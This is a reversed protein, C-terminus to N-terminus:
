PFCFRLSIYRILISKLIKTLFSCIKPVRLIKALFSCIKFLFPMKQASLINQVFLLLNQVFFNCQLIFDLFIGDRCPQLVPSDFKKPSPLQIPNIGSSQGKNTGPGLTGTRLTGIVRPIYDNLRGVSKLFINDSHIIVLKSNFNKLQQCM